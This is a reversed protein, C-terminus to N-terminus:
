AEYLEISVVSPLAAKPLIGSKVAEAQPVPVDAGSPVAPSQPAAEQLPVPPYGTCARFQPYTCYSWPSCTPRIARVPLRSSHSRAAAPHVPAHRPSYWLFSHPPTAERLHFRSLLFAGCEPLPRFDRLTQHLLTNCCAPYRTDASLLFAETSFSRVPRFGARGKDSLFLVTHM